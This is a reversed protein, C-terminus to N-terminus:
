IEKLKANVFAALTELYSKYDFQNADQGTVQDIANKTQGALMELESKIVGLGGAAQKVEKNKAESEEFLVGKVIRTLDKETLKIIKKM